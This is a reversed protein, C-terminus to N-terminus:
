IFKKLNRDGDDNKRYSNERYHHLMYYKKEYLSTMTFAIEETTKCIYLVHRDLNNYTCSDM